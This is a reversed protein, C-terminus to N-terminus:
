TGHPKAAAKLRDALEDLSVTEGRALQELGRELSALAGPPARDLFPEGTMSQAFDLLADIQEDTLREAVATLQETKSMLLDIM